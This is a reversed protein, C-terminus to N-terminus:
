EAQASSLARSPLLGLASGPGSAPPSNTSSPEGGKKKNTASLKMSRSQATIRYIGPTQPSAGPGSFVAEEASRSKRSLSRGPFLRWEEFPEDYVGVSYLALALKRAIGILAGTGRDRDKSKKAEYWRRVDPAQSLRMAAFYLWRRVISPGRKTIKLKGQHKGSSREKLNLGMAKRYAEGCHYNNPDGLTVWLVCATVVGVAKGQRQISANGQSLDKLKRRSKQTERYAALAMTAYQSIRQIDRSDQRVGVTAFASDLVTAIKKRKLLPGGWRALRDGAKDDARAKRPGGYHSLMQLLTPSNLALLSTLEPWHRALMGELRGLWLMAISQQADLWDVWYALEADNGAKPSFAWPWSKGFASLEAVVAADKGDHKSPVGDFIEAYDHAAKGSVRHVSLGADSLAQRLADGYTGTSEMAVTVARDRALVRLLAVLKIIETPNAAKWPREFTRDSWRIVTFIEGKGIDMGVHVDGVPASELVQELVVKKVATSRYARRKGM